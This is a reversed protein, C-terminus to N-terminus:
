WAKKTKWPTHYKSYTLMEVLQCIKKKRQCCLDFKQLSRPLATQLCAM